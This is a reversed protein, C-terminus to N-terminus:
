NDKQQKKCEECQIECADGGSLYYNICGFSPELEDVEDEEYLHPCCVECGADSFDYKDHGCNWCYDDPDPEPEPEWPACGAPYFLDCKQCRTGYYEEKFEHKCQAM